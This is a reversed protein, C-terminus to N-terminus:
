PTRTVILKRVNSANTHIPLIESNTSLKINDNVQLTDLTNPDMINQHRDPDTDGSGCRHSTSGVGKKM